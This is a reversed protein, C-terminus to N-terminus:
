EEAGRFKQKLKETISAKFVDEIHIHARDVWDFVDDFSVAGPRVLFYDLDLVFAVKNPEESAASTLELKLIDRSDEYPAQIGVIFVGYDQPLNKGVFPRFEFYDKLETNDADIEIRNIYRLGIRHISKPNVVAKYAELGKKIFPLFDEWSTYPALRNISLLKPGVQILSKEDETLFQIREIPQLQQQVSAPGIALSLVNVQKRKLFEDKVEAYILGPMTLDWPSDPEFQFECVAEVIPPFKYKESM